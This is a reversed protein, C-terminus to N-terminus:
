SLFCAVCTSKDCCFLDGRIVVSWSCGVFSSSALSREQAELRSGIATILFTSVLQVSSFFGSTTLFACAQITMLSVCERIQEWSPTEHLLKEWRPTAELDDLVGLIMAFAIM